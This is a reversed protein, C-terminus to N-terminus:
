QSLAMGACSSGSTWGAPPEGQRMASAYVDAALGAMEDAHYTRQLEDAKALAVPDGSERLRDLLARREHLENPSTM